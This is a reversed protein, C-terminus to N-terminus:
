RRKPCAVAAHASASAGDIFAFTAAFPFGGRPCSSPLGVGAPHYPIRRGRVTEYYTLNGGLTIHMEALAVYPAAPLSPIPPVTISLHGPLLVSTMLVDAEVPFAGSAYVLMHLYGDPSPGALLTLEVTERVLHPGFAIEVIASGGGMRSDAPCGDPGFMELQSPQCAMVGLDSTALGLGRPYSLSVGSLPAPAGGGDHVSFAFSVTTPAGLREPTFLASMRATPSALAAGPLCACAALVLL